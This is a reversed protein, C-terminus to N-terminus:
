KKEGLDEFEADVVDGEPAKSKAPDAAGADTSRAGAKAQAERYMIEALKHSAKMLNEQARTIRNMDDGKLAERAENLADEIVKREGEPVKDGHERLTRETTYVLSDAQNRVEIEQQRQADEAAHAEAEKMMREVEDKTLTSAATIT